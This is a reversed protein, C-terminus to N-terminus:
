CSPFAICMATVHDSSIIVLLAALVHECLCLCQPGFKVARILLVVSKKQVNEM